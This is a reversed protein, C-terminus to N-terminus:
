DPNPYSDTAAGLGVAGLPLAVMVDPLRSKAPDFVANKSRIGAGTLKLVDRGFDLADFGARRFLDNSNRANMQIAQRLLKGSDAVTMQPNRRAFEM